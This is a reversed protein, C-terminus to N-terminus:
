PGTTILEQIREYTARPIIRRILLDDPTTYPGDRTRSDVIRQSYVEGIGPLTDLEEATASNIDILPVVAAGAVHSTAQAPEGLRPVVVQDEDHLRVALNIAELNADPAPGGAEFLADVVRTGAAMEYVGPQAVAGTIHVEMPGAPTAQGISIEFPQPGDRRDIILVVIAVALAAALAIVILNRYRDPGSAM